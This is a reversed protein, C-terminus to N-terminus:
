RRLTFICINIPTMYSNNYLTSKNKRKIAFKMLRVHVSKQTAPHTEISLPKMANLIKIKHGSKNAIIINHDQDIVRLGDPIGDIIKQLFNETTQIESISQELKDLMNNFTDTLFDTEDLFYRQKYPIARQSLNGEAVKKSVDALIKLPTIVWRKLLFWLLLLSLIIM